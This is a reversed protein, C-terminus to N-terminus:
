RHEGTRLQVRTSNHFTDNGIHSQLNDMGRSQAFDERKFLNPFPQVSPQSVVETQYLDSKSSPIYTSQPAGGRQLAFFQNRLSSELNINSLYGDVPGKELNSYFKDKPEYQPYKEIAQKPIRRRDIVPFLAYKTSVPRPDFNPQLPADTSVRDVIRRNLEEVRENQGILVGAYGSPILGEIKQNHQSYQM